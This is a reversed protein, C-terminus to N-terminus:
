GAPRRKRVTSDMLAGAESPRKQPKNTVEGPVTPARDEGAARTRESSGAGIARERMGAFNRLSIVHTYVLELMDTRVLEALAEASLTKLRARDVASFGALSMREGTDLSVQARMPELLNLDKLKKCFAQTRQFELQYQQLFKMVNEVYPTPKRDDTFLREGRGHQNFGPFKEDICLTFTKGDDPSSFVFPYRRVFAPIYKAQWGEDKSLYLNEENRLGLVATPMVVDGTGAFVIAYEAAASAFEVAMLPVSNVTRSFGYNAGVEVSWDGHRGHSVPVTHEYILLQTSV